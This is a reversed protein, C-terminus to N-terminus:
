PNLYATLQVVSIWKEMQACMPGHLLRQAEDLARERSSYPWGPTQRALQELKAYCAHNIEQRM